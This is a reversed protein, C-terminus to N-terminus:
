SVERAHAAGARDEVHPETESAGTETAGTESEGTEWPASGDRFRALRAKTTPRALQADFHAFASREHAPDVEHCSSVLSKIAALASADARELRARLRRLSADLDSALEDVLGVRLAEAAGLPRATLALARARAVGVRRAVYPFVVAPILGVLAEPLGFSASEDALVVDAVAALGLGGGLARGRVVAVVVFPARDLERLWAALERVGAAADEDADVDDLDLGACFDAGEGELVLVRPGEARTRERLTAVRAASLSPLALRSVSAM